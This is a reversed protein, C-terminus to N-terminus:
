QPRRHNTAVCRPVGGNLSPYEFVLDNRKERIDRIEGEFEQIVTDTKAGDGGIYVPTIIQLGRLEINHVHKEEQTAKITMGTQILRANGTLQPSNENHRNRFIEVTFYTNNNVKEDSQFYDGSTGGAGWPTPNVILYHLKGGFLYLVEYDHTGRAYLLIGNEQVTRFELKYHASYSINFNEPEFEIHATGGFSFCPGKIASVGVTLLYLFIPLLIM